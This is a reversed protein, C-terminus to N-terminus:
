LELNVTALLLLESESESSDKELGRRTYGSWRAVLGLVASQQLVPYGLTGEASLFLDSQRWMKMLDGQLSVLLPAPLAVTYRLRAASAASPRNSESAWGARHPVHAGGSYYVWAGEVPSVFYHLRTRDGGLSVAGEFCPLTSVQALTEVALTPYRGVEVRGVVFRLAPRGLLFAAEAEGESPVYIEGEGGTFMRLRLRAARKMGESWAGDAQAGFYLLVRSNRHESELRMGGLKGTVGTALSGRWGAVIEDTRLAGAQAGAPAVPLEGITGPPAPVAAAALTLLAALLHM